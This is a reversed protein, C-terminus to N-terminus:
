VHIQTYKRNNISGSYKRLWSKYIHTMEKEGFRFPNICTNLHLYILPHPSTKHFISHFWLFEHYSLKEHYEHTARWWWKVDKVFVFMSFSQSVVFNRGWSYAFFFFFCWLGRFYALMFKSSEVSCPVTTKNINTAILKRPNWSFWLKLYVNIRPWHDEWHLINTSTASWYVNKKMSRSLLSIM